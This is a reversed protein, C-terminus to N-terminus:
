RVLSKQWICIEEQSGQIVTINQRRIEDQAAPTILTHIDIHLREQGSLTLIDSLTILRKQLSVAKGTKGINRTVAVAEPAKKGAVVIGYQELTTVYEALRNLLPSRFGMDGSNLSEPNLTVIIQKRMKLAHFVWESAINDRICLAIKSLSNTSLAPLFLHSFNDDGETPADDTYLVGTCNSAVESVYASKLGSVTASHSFTVLLQYGARDLAALSILTAPLASFNDGTILVRVKKRVANLERRKQELLEAILADLQVSLVQHDM